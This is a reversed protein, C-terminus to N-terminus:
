IGYVVQFFKEINAHLRAIKSEISINERMQCADPKMIGRVYFSCNLDNCIYDGYIKNRDLKTEATFLNVGSGRHLTLCWSCMKPKQAGTLKTRKLVLGRTQRGDDYVIFALHGSVHAWGFFDLANWDVKELNPFVLQKRQRASFGEAIEERTLPKM